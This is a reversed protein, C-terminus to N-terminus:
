TDACVLLDGGCPWNWGFDISSKPLYNAHFNQKRADGLGQILTLTRNILLLIYLETTDMMVGFKFWVLLYFDLHM